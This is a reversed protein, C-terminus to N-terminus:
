SWRLGACALSAWCRGDCAVLVLSCRDFVVMAPWCVALSSWQLGSHHRGECILLLLSELHLHMELGQYAGVGVAVSAGVGPVFSSLAWTYKGKIGKRYVRSVIAYLYVVHVYTRVVLEVAVVGVKVCGDVVVVLVIIAHHGIGGRRPSPISGGGFECWRSAVVVLVLVVMEVHEIGSGFSSSSV